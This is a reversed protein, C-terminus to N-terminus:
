LLDQIQKMYESKSLWIQIKFRVNKNLDEINQPSIWPLGWIEKTNEHIESLYISLDAINLKKAMKLKM